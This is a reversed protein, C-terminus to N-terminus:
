RPPTPPATDAQVCSSLDFFMFEMARQKEDLDGAEPCGEPFESGGAEM